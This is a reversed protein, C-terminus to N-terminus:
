SLDLAHIANMDRSLIRIEPLNDERLSLHYSFLCKSESVTAVNCLM